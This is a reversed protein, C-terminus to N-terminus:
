ALKQGGSSSDDEDYPGPPITPGSALVDLEIVSLSTPAAINTHSESQLALGTAFLAAAAILVSTRAFLNKM